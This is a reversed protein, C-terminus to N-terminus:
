LKKLEGIITEHAAIAAALVTDQVEGRGLWDAGDMIYLSKLTGELDEATCRPDSELRRRLGRIEKDFADRYTTERWDASDM